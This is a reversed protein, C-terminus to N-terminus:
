LLERNFIIFLICKDRKSSKVIVETISTWWSILCESAKWIEGMILEANRYDASV